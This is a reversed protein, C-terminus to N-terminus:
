KILNSHKYSHRLCSDGWIRTTKKNHNLYLSGCEYCRLIKFGFASIIIEWEMYPM